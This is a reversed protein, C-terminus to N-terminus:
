LLNIIDFNTSRPSHLTNANLISVDYENAETRVRRLSARSASSARTASNGSFMVETLTTSELSVNCYDGGAHSNSDPMRLTRQKKSAQWTNKM